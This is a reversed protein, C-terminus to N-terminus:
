STTTLTPGQAEPRHIAALPYGMALQVLVLTLTLTVSILAVMCTASTNLITQTANPNATVSQILRYDFYGERENDAGPRHHRARAAAPGSLSQLRTQALSPATADAEGECPWIFLKSSTPAYRRASRRM